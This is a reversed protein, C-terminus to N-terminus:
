AVGPTIVEPKHEASYMGALAPAFDNLHSRWAPSFARAATADHELLFRLHRLAHLLVDIHRPTPPADAAHTIPKGVVDPLMLSVLQAGPWHTEVDPCDLAAVYTLVVSEGEARWSTSHIIKAADLAGHERLIASVAWHPDTDAAIPGSRWAEGGSILWIGRENASLGWIEAVATMPAPTHDDACGTVEFVLWGSRTGNEAVWALQRGIHGYPETLVERGDARKQRELEDADQLLATWADELSAFPAGPEGNSLVHYHIM